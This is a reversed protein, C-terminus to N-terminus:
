AAAVVEPAPKKAGTKPARRPRSAIWAEVEELDWALTNEGLAVAKPFDYREIARALQMRNSMIGNKELYTYRVFSM